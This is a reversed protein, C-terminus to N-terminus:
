IAESRAIFVVGTIILAVGALKTVTISEGLVLASLAISIIYNVAMIPQLVSVKGFRYAKIMILAAIGYLGFGLILLPWSSAGLKWLLQGVCSLISSAIM